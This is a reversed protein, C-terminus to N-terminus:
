VYEVWLGGVDNEGSMGDIRERTGVERGESARAALVVDGYWFGKERVKEEERENKPLRLVVEAGSKLGPVSEVQGTEFRVEDDGRATGETGFITGYVRRVEELSERTDVIVSLEKVGVAGCAHATSSASLPVRYSRPTVDHCYFPVKGRIAQGEKEGAPFTVAWEVTVGDPRKRAGNIPRSHSASIHAHNSTPTLANTLCWDTWGHRSPSPGWWHTAINQAHTTTATPMTTTASSAPPPPLFCILEVYCGDALLILVNSTLNDAHTGGPTITFNQPFFSPLLPTQPNTPSPPLFLILHDLSPTTSM